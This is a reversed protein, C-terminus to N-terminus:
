RQDPRAVGVAVEAPGGGAVGLDAGDQGVVPEPGARFQGVVPDGAEVPGHRGGREAVEGADVRGLAGAVAPEEGAPEGDAAGLREGSGDLAGGGLVVGVPGRERPLDVQHGRGVLRGVGPEGGVGADLPAEGLEGPGLAGGGPSSRTLARAPPPGPASSTAPRAANRSPAPTAVM